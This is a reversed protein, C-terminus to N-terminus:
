SRYKALMPAFDEEDSSCGGGCLVVTKLLDRRSGSWIPLMLQLNKTARSSYDNFQTLSYIEFICGRKVVALADVLMIDDADRVVCGLEEHVLKFKGDNEQVAWVKCDEAYVLESNSVAMCKGDCDYLEYVINETDPYCKYILKWGNAFVDADEVNEAVVNLNADFLVGTDESKQKEWFCNGGCLSLEVGRRQLKGDGDYLYDMGDIDSVLAFKQCSSLGLGVIQENVVEMKDNYLVLCDATKAAFLGNPIYIYDRYCSLLKTGDSRYLLMNAVIANPDNELAKFTKGKLLRPYLGECVVQTHAEDDYVVFTGDHFQLCYYSNSMFQYNLVNEAVVSGDKRYVTFLDPSYEIIIFEADEWLYAACFGTFMLTLDDRYLTKENNQCIVFWGNEFLSVDQVKDFLMRGSADFLSFSYDENEIVFHNGDAIKLHKTKAIERGNEDLLMAKNDAFFVYAWDNRFRSLSLVDDAIKKGTVVNFCTKPANFFLKQVDM